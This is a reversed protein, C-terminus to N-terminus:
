VKEKQLQKIRYVSKEISTELYGIIQPLTFVNLPENLEEKTYNLDDRIYELFKTIHEDLVEEVLDIKDPVDFLDQIEKQPKYYDLIKSNLLYFDNYYLTQIDPTKEIRDRLWPIYFGSMWFDDTILHSYYGLIFDNEQINKYKEIFAEYDIHRTFQELNGEYFHTKLKDTTADAAISGLLFLNRNNIDLRKSVENGVILHMIRSGM